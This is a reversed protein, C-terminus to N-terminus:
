PDAGSRRRGSGRTSTGPGDGASGAATSRRACSGSTPAGPGTTWCRPPAAASCSCGATSRPCRGSRGRRCAAPWRSSTGPRATLLTTGGVAARKRAVEWQLLLVATGWARQGLLHRLLPTTIAFPVNSVVHHPVDLAFRLMDGQEVRARGALERSLAGARRPDLEVATVPRAGDALLRTVAGDGAGLELVPEPGPPVLDVIRRRVGPDVLFNQGLEHRGGHVPM